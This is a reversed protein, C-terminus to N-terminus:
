KDSKRRLFSLVVGAAAVAVFVAAIAGGVTTLDATITPLQGQIAADIAAGM